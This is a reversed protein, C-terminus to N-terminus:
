AHAGDRARWWSWSAIFVWIMIGAVVAWELAIVLSIAPRDVPDTGTYTLSPLYLSLFGIFAAVTLAGVLPLWRPFSDPRRYIDLSALGVFIWGLGFFTLAALRHPGIENMPFIGVFAAAVGSVIGIPVYLWAWRTRRGLGLATMFIALCLGSVILGLNFVTALQSVGTEGLESVWHNLPSFGEAATGSYAVAAVVSALGFVLTGFVGVGPGVRLSRSV